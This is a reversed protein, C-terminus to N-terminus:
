SREGGTDAPSAAGAATQAHPHVTTIPFHRFVFCLEDQLQTQTTADMKDDETSAGITVIRPTPANIAIL